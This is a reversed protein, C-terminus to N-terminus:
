NYKVEIYKIKFGKASFKREFETQINEQNYESSHLDLSIENFNMGYQNFSILSSEFLTDNDTKFKIVGDKVLLEEYVKLYDSYTLRRKAHRKKPWPDSFNLYIGLINEFYDGLNIADCTFVRLNKIELEEIKKIAAVLVSEFKEIGVFQRDPYKLAMGILFDGKGMGIELYCNSIKQDVKLYYDSANLIEAANKINRLRM